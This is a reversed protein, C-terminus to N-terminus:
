ASRHPSGSHFRPPRTMPDGSAAVGRRHSGDSRGAVVLANVEYLLLMAFEIVRGPRFALGGRGPPAAGQYRAHLAGVEEEDSPQRSHCLEGLRALDAQAQEPTVGLVAAKDRDINISLQPNRLQLDTTVEQV